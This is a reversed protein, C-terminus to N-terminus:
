ARTRDRFLLATGGLLTCLSLVIGVVLATSRYFLVVTHTGGPVSVARFTVNARLLPAPTGDLQAKWDPNYSDVFVVFGPHSLSLDLQVRDPTDLRITCTGSFGPVAPAPEGSALVVEAKPDFGPDLEAAIARGGDAVVAQPVVYCRPLASQVAFVGVPEDFLSKYQAIPVVGDPAGSPFGVIHSVAGLQLLRGLVRQDQTTRALQVVAGLYNPYLGLLDQDYSGRIDWRGNL